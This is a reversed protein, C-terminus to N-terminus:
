KRHTSDKCEEMEGLAVFFDVVRNSVHEGARSRELDDISKYNTLKVNVIILPKITM